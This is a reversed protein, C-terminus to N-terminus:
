TSATPYPSCMARRSRPRPSSPRSWRRPGSVKEWRSPVASAATRRSCTAALRSCAASSSTSTTTARSSTRSPRISARGSKRATSRSPPRQALLHLVRVRPRRAAGRRRVGRPRGQASRLGRRGLDAHLTYAKPLRERAARHGSPRGGRTYASRTAALRPAPGQRPAAAGPAASSRPTVTARPTSVRRAKASYRGQNNTKM